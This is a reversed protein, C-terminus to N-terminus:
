RPRPLYAYYFKVRREREEFDEPHFLPTGDERYHRAHDEEYNGTKAITYTRPDFVDYATRTTADIYAAGFLRARTRPIPAVGSGWLELAETITPQRGQGKRWHYIRTMGAALLAEDRIRWPSHKNRHNTDPDQRMRARIFGEIDKYKRRDNEGGTIALTIARAGADGDYDDPGYIASRGGDRQEWGVINPHEAIYAARLQQAMVDYPLLETAAPAAATM